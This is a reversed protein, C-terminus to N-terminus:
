PINSWRRRQGYSANISEGMAIGYRPWENEDDPLAHYVVTATHLQDDDLIAFSLGVRCWYRM